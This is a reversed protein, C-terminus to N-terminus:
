SNQWYELKSIISSLRGAEKVAGIQLLEAEVDMLRNKAVDTSDKLKRIKEKDLM